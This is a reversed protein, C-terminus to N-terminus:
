QIKEDTKDPRVTKGQALVEVAQVFASIDKVIIQTENVPDLAMVAEVNVQKELCQRVFASRVDKSGFTVLIDIGNSSLQVNTSEFLKLIDPAKEVTIKALELKEGLVEADKKTQESVNKAAAIEGDLRTLTTQAVTLQSQFKEVDTTAANLTNKAAALNDAHIKKKEDTDPNEKELSEVTAKAAALTQEAAALMQKLGKPVSDQDIEKQIADRKNTKASVLDDVKNMSEEKMMARVGEKGSPVQGAANNAEASKQAVAQPKERKGPDVMEQMERIQLLVYSIVGIFKHLSRDAKSEGKYPQMARQEEPKDTGQQFEEIIQDINEDTADVGSIMLEAVLISKQTQTPPKSKHKERFKAVKEQGSELIQRREDATLEKEGGQEQQKVTAEVQVSLRKVLEKADNDLSQWLQRIEVNLEPTINVSFPIDPSKPFLKLASTSTILDDMREANAFCYGIANPSAGRITNLLRQVAPASQPNDRIEKLFTEVIVRAERPMNLIEQAISQDPGTPQGPGSEHALVLNSAQDLRFSVGASRYADNVVGLPDPTDYTVLDDYYLNAAGTLAKNFREQLKAADEDAQRVHFDTMGQVAEPHGDRLKDLKEQIEKQKPTLTPETRQEPVNQSPTNLEDFLLRHERGGTFAPHFLM